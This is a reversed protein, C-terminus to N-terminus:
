KNNYTHYLAGLAWDPEMEDLMRLAAKEGSEQAIVRLGAVTAEKYGKQREANLRDREKDPEVNKGDEGKIAGFFGYQQQRLAKYAAKGLAGTLSGTAVMEVVNIAAHLAGIVEAETGTKAMDLGSQTVKKIIEGRTLLGPQVKGEEKLSGLYIETQQRLAKVAVTLEKAMEAKNKRDVRKLQIWSLKNSLVHASKEVAGLHGPLIKIATTM